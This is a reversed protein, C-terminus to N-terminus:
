NGRLISEVKERSPFTEIGGHGRTSLAGCVNGWALSEELEMGNLWAFLFGADFCDGAGTTEIPEVSYAPRFIIKDHLFSASGLPGLKLAVRNLGHSHFWKLIKRPESEGTIRGAERENPFFWDVEQLAKLTAPSHLWSEDWGVDISVTSGQQHLWQTLEKLIAAPVLHAFHVHRAEAMQRRCNADDLLSPLLTNAGAYTYFVRDKDTSIAVTIATPETESSLTGTHVDKSEFRDRFWEIEVPGVIGMVRTNAGLVGLGCATIAAGGGMERRFNSALAEEGLAPLRSFGTMVLDIFLDGFVVVDCSKSTSM